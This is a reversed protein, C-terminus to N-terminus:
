KFFRRLWGASSRRRRSGDHDDGVQMFSQGNSASSPNVNLVGSSAIRKVNQPLSEPPANALIGRPRTDVLHEAEATGIRRAAVDRGMSLNPPRRDINHADTALIDVFGEDLMRESWYRASGGFMGTLSGATIQMWVGNQALAQIVPYHHKIWTLREPHTLIPVYGAVLIEFFLDALRVPFVHHPPEVLVYRSNSLPLLHGSRLGAVFQPTIHNDAGAVLQLPIDNQDLALQLSVVAERIQAGTNHYLGPLIHPTCAVVSVGDAVFARAMALSVLQDSAGDDIGPLIHCHLDIM